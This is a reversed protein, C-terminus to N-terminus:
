LGVCCSAALSDGGCVVVATGCIGHRCTCGGRFLMRYELTCGCFLLMEPSLTHRHHAHPAPLAPYPVEEPTLRVVGTRHCSKGYKLLRFREM